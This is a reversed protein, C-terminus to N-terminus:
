GLKGILTKLDQQIEAFTKKVFTDAEKTSADRAKNDQEIASLQADLKFQAALRRVDASKLQATTNKVEQQEASVAEALQKQFQELDRAILTVGAAAPHDGAAAAQRPRLGPVQPVLVVAGPKLAKLTKLHPNAQLLAEEAVKLQAPPLDGFVRTAIDSVRKEGTFTTIAM